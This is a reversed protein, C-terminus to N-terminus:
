SGKFVRLKAKFLTRLKLSVLVCDPTVKSQGLSGGSAFFVWLCYFQTLSVVGTLITGKLDIALPSSAIKIIAKVSTLRTIENKLRDYFVPLCDSFIVNRYNSCYGSKRAVIVDYCAFFRLLIM